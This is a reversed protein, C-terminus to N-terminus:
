FRLVNLFLLLCATPTLGAIYLYCLLQYKNANFLVFMFLHKLDHSNINQNKLFSLTKM